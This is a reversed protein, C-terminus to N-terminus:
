VRFPLTAFLLPFLKGHPVPPDPGPLLQLISRLPKSMGIRWVTSSEFILPDATSFCAREPIIRYIAIKPFAVRIDPFNQQMTKAKVIFRNVQAFSQQTMEVVHPIRRDVMM